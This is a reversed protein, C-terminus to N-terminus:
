VYFVAPLGEPAGPFLFLLGWIYWAWNTTAQTWDDINKCYNELALIRFILLIFTYWM